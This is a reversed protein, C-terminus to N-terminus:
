GAVQLRSSALGSLAAQLAAPSETRRLTGDLFSAVAGDLVPTWRTGGQIPPLHDAGLLTLYYRRASVQTFVQQSNSYPVVSDHDGQVLLLPPGGAAVAGTMADPAVAVVAGVRPDVKGQQYGDMLAVDAGDSHGVVGVPGPALSAALPGSQLSTIVFSM